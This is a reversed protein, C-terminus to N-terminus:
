DFGQLILKFGCIQNSNYSNSKVSIVLSATIKMWVLQIISHTFKESNSIVTYQLQLIYFFFM